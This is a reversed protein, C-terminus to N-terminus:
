GLAGVAVVLPHPDHHHDRLLVAEGEDGRGDAREPLEARVEPQALRGTGVQLQRKVHAFVHVAETPSAIRRASLKLHHCQCIDDNATTSRSTASLKGARPEILLRPAAATLVTVRRCILATNGGSRAQPRHADRRSMARTISVSPGGSVPVLTSFTSTRIGPPRRTMPSHTYPSPTRAPSEAM